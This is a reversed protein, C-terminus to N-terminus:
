IPFIIVNLNNSLETKTCDFNCQTEIMGIGVLAELALARMSIVSSICNSTHANHSTRKPPKTLFLKKHRMFLPYLFAWCKALSNILDTLFQNIIQENRVDYSWLWFANRYSSTNDVYYDGINNTLTSGVKHRTRIYMIREVQILVSDSKM